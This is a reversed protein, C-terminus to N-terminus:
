LQAGNYWAGVKDVKNQILFLFLQTIFRNMTQLTRDTEPRMTAMAPGMVVGIIVSKEQIIHPREQRLAKAYRREGEEKEVQRNPKRKTILAGLGIGMQERM